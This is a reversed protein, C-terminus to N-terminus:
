LGYVGECLFYTRAIQGRVRLVPVSRVGSTELAKEDYEYHSDSKKEFEADKPLRLKNTHELTRLWFGSPDVIEERTTYTNNRVAKVPSTELLFPRVTREILSFIEGPNEFKIESKTPHVNVDVEQPDINLNIIGIPFKRVPMLGRYSQELAYSMAKDTVLRGNVFLIIHSRNSRYHSPM